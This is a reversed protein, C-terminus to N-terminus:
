GRGKVSELKGVLSKSPIFLECDRHYNHEKDTPCRKMSLHTTESDGFRRVLVRIFNLTTLLVIFM